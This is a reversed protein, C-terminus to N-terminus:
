YDLHFYEVVEQYTMKSFDISRNKGSTSSVPPIIVYRFQTDSPFSIFELFPDQWYRITLNETTFFYDLQLKFDASSRIAMPLLTTQGQPWADESFASTRAYVLFASTNINESPIESLSINMEATGSFIDDPAEIWDSAIVNANGDEGDEGATGQPGEPGQIGQEGQLGIPGQVEDKDCSIFFLTSLLVLSFFKIKKM